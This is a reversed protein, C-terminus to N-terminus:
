FSQIQAWSPEKLYVLCRVRLDALGWSLLVFNTKHSVHHNRETKL